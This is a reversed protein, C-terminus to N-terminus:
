KIGLLAELENLTSTVLEEQENIEKIMKEIMENAAEVSECSYEEKLQKLIPERAGIAKAREEKASEYQAKVKEFRKIDIM